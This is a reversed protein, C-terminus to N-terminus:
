KASKNSKLISIQKELKRIKHLLNGERRQMDMHYVACKNCFKTRAFANELKVGCYVCNSDDYYIGIPETMEQICM